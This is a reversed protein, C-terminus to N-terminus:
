GIMRKEKAVRLLTISNKVGLKRFLNKRHVAVTQDSIFLLQSIEKNNLGLSIQYLIEKERSTLEFDLKAPTRKSQIEKLDPHIRFGTPMYVMNKSLVDIAEFFEAPSAHAYQYGQAGKMMSKRALDQASIPGVVLIFGKKIKKHLTDILHLVHSHDNSLGLIILQPQFEILKSISEPSPSESQICQFVPQRSEALTVEIGKRTMYEPHIIAYDM